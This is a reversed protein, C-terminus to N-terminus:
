KGRVPSCQLALFPGDARSADLITLYEQLADEPTRFTQSIKILHAPAEVYWGDGGRSVPFSREYLKVVGICYDNGLEGGRYIRYTLM